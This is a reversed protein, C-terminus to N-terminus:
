SKSMDDHKDLIAGFNVLLGGINIVFYAMGLIRSQFFGFRLFRSFLSMSMYKSFQISDHKNRKM